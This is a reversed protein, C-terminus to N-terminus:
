TAAARFAHTRSDALSSRHLTNIEEVVVPFSSSMFRFVLLRLLYFGLRARSM